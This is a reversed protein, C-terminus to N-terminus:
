GLVSSFAIRNQLFETASVPLSLFYFLRLNRRLKKRMEGSKRRPASIV